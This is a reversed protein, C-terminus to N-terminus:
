SLYKIRFPPPLGWAVRWRAGNVELMSKWLHERDSELMIVSLMVWHTCSNMGSRSSLWEYLTFARGLTSHFQKVGNASIAELLPVHSQFKLIPFVWQRPIIFRVTSFFASTTWRTSWIVEQFMILPLLLPIPLQHCQHYLRCISIGWHNGWCPKHKKQKFIHTLKSTCWQLSVFRCHHCSQSYICPLYLFLM